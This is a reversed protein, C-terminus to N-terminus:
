GLAKVEDGSGNLEALVKLVHTEDGEAVTRLDLLVREEAIRSIIPPSGNRLAKELAQAGMDKHTLGILTTKLRTLPASGGGIASEGPVPEAVLRADAGGATETLQSLFRTVRDDIEAPTMALMRLAPLETM